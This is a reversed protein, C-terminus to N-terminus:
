VKKERGAMGQDGLLSLILCIISEWVSQTNVSHSGSPVDRPFCLSGGLETVFLDM